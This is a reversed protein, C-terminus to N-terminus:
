SQKINLEEGAQYGLYGLNFDLTAFREEDGRDRIEGEWNEMMKLTKFFSGGESIM